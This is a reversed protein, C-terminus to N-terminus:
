RCEVNRSSHIRILKGSGSASDILLSGLHFAVSSLKAMGDYVPSTGHHIETLPPEITDASFRWAPHNTCLSFASFARCRSQQQPADVIGLCLPRWKNKLDLAELV